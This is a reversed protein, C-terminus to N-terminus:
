EPASARRDIMEVHTIHPLYLYEVYDCLIHDPDDLDPIGLDFYEVGVAALHPYRVDFTRGDQLHVRFPQFPEHRVLNFLEM